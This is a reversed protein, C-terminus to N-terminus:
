VKFTYNDRVFAALDANDTYVRMVSRDDVEAYTNLEGAQTYSDVEDNVRSLVALVDAKVKATFGFKAKRAKLEQFPHTIWNM